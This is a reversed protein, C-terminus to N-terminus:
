LAVAPDRELGFLFARVEGVLFISGAVVVLGSAGVAQRARALAEPVTAAPTGEWLRALEAPDAAKRGEPAVYV